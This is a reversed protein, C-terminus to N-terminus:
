ESVEENVMKLWRNKLRFYAGYQWTREIVKGITINSLLIYIDTLTMYKLDKVRKRKKIDELMFRIDNLIIRQEYSLSIDKMEDLRNFIAKVSPTSM